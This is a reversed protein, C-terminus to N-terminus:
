SFYDTIIKPNTEAPTVKIEFYRDVNNVTISIPRHQRQQNSSIKAYAADSNTLLEVIGRVIKGGIFFKARDQAGQPGIGYDFDFKSDSKTM